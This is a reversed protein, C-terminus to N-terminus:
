REDDDSELVAPPPMTDLARLHRRLPESPVLVEADLEWADGAENPVLSQCLVAALAESLRRRQLRADAAVLRHVLATVTAGRLTCLVLKGDSAADLALECAADDDVLDLVLVDLPGLRLSRVARTATADELGDVQRAVGARSRLAYAVPEEVSALVAGSDVLSQSLAALTTSRGSGPTGGIIVLGRELHMLASLFRPPLGLSDLAPPRAPLVRLAGTVVGRERTLSLRYRGHDRVGFGTVLSGEREFGEVQAETLFSFALRRTDESALPVPRLVRRGFPGHAVLPAGPVFLLDTAHLAAAERLLELPDLATAVDDDGDADDNAASTSRAAEVEDPASSTGWHPVLVLHAEPTRGAVLTASELVNLLESLWGAQAARRAADLAPRQLQQVLVRLPLAGLASRGVGVRDLLGGTLLREGANAEGLVQGVVQGVTRAVVDVDAGELDVFGGPEGARLVADALAHAAVDSLTGTDSTAAVASAWQAADFRALFHRGPTAGADRLFARLAEPELYRVHYGLLRPEM